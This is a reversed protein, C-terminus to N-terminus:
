KAEEKSLISYYSFAEHDVCSEWILPKYAKRIVLPDEGIRGPVQKPSWCRSEKPILRQRQTIFSLDMYPYLLVLAFTLVTLVNPRWNEDFIDPGVVRLARRVISLVALFKADEM